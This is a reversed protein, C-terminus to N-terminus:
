RCGAARLRGPDTRYLEITSMRARSRPDLLPSRRGSGRGWWGLFMPLFRGLMAVLHVPRARLETALAGRLRSNVRARVPGLVGEPAQVLRETDLAVFPVRWPLTLGLPSRCCTAIWRIAGRRTQQLCALREAGRIIRIRDPRVQFRDTGGHMDLLEPHGMRQAFTRCGECECVIRNVVAPEVGAISIQVQGCSCRLEVDM